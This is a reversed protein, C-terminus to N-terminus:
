KKKLRISVSNKHGDLGEIGALTEIAPGISSIGEASIHQFTLKKVFTDVSVGSYARAFGSTPLTHNTGSAYDGAAEPTFNGLFVSGANRIEPILDEYQETALILHESAYHNAFTVAEQLNEVLLAFSHGLAKGAIEMRPLSALQDSLAQNVQDAIEESTTVLVAQSDTGHEAQALLDAAVFDPNCSQDAIVLVESPGAPMDIATGFLSQVMMKARTVYQNGPGAIKYVKPVSETGLAMAAIAQAGGALYIKEIGLVKAVYALYPTVKGNERPPTCVVINRCGAIKAPIGLMLFTSPLVATGGPIYMGVKQIARSERWCTIGPDTEVKQEKQFQSQHFKYINAYALQLAKREEENVGSALEEIQEKDIFLRELKIGDFKETLEILAKDGSEKVRDIVKSVAQVIEESAGTYRECLRAIDDATLQQYFYRKLM